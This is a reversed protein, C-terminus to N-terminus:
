SHPMQFLTGGGRLQVEPCAWASVGYRTGGVLLDVQGCLAQGPAIRSSWPWSGRFIHTMMGSKFIGKMPLPGSALSRPIKESLSEALVAESVFAVERSSPVPM